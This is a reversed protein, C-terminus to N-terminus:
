RPPVKWITGLIGPKTREPDPPDMEQYTGEPVNPQYYISLVLGPELEISVPYGLDKNPADDRLVIENEVNWTVGDQSICARQGFPPRRHGYSVLVRGDSLQMLHPPYGWLPTEYPEAWTKGNDDSYTGWMYCRSDGDNYPKTTARMMMLVRGSEMQLLHPEGFRLSDPSPPAVTAITEWTSIPEDAINVAVSDRTDRYSGILIRGDQLQVGGHNSDKGPVPRSWTKGGDTSLSCWGGEIREASKYEPTVTFRKWWELVDKEYALPRLADYKEPTHFTSWYHMLLRGDKLTTIGSERDDIPTDYIVVPDLWTKANDTSRSLLIAGDPGLHEESKCYLVVIDGEATRAVSPWALYEGPAEFISLHRVILGDSDGTEPACSILFTSALALWKLQAFKM